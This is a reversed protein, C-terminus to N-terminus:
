VTEMRLDGNDGLMIARLVRRRGVRDDPVAVRVGIVLERNELVGRRDLAVEVHVPSDSNAAVRQVRAPRPQLQTLPRYAREVAAKIQGGTEADAPASGAM